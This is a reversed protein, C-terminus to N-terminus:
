NITIIKLAEQLAVILWGCWKMIESLVSETKKSM